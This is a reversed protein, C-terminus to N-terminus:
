ADVIDQIALASLFGAAKAQSEALEDGPISDATIGCGALYHIRGNHVFATRIAVSLEMTGDFGIWGIAGMCPGRGTGEEALAAQVAAIKPAGTVSAPPFSARVLDAISRDRRLRGVVRSYTHYLTPLELLSRHEAVRVSGAECVRSLDNRVVDVIMALEAADKASSLLDAPAGASTKSRTGKIPHSEVVGGDVKLFLEPSMSLVASGADVPVFAAYRAPNLRRMRCYLPWALHPPFPATLSRCLNTQFFDGQHIRDVITQVGRLFAADDAEVAFGGEWTEATPPDAVADDYLAFHLRPFGPSLPPMPGINELEAVVDYSIFGHLRAGERGQWATLAADLLDLSSIEFEVTKEPTHVVGRHGDCTLTAL